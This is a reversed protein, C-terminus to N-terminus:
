PKHLIAITSGLTLVDGDELIRKDGKNLRDGNVYCGLTTGLDELILKGKKSLHIKAHHRGMDLDDTLIQLTADSSKNHRGLTSVGIPIDIEQYRALPSEPVELYIEKSVYVYPSVFVARVSHDEHMNMKAESTYIAIPHHCTDCIRKIAGDYEYNPLLAELEIGCYPCEIQKM